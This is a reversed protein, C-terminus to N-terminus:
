STTNGLGWWFVPLWYWRFGDWWSSSRTWWLGRSDTWWKKLFKVVYAGCNVNHWDTLSVLPFVWYCEDESSWAHRCWLGHCDGRSTKSFDWNPGFHHPSSVSQCQREHSFNKNRESTASVEHKVSLMFGPWQSQGRYQQTDSEAKWSTKFIGHVTWPREVSVTLLIFIFVQLFCHMETDSQKNWYLRNEWRVALFGEKGHRGGTEGWSFLFPAFIPSSAGHPPPPSLSSVNRTNILDKRVPLLWKSSKQTRVLWM